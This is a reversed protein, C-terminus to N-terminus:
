GDLLRALANSAATWELSLRTAESAYCSAAGDMSIRAATLEALYQEMSTIAQRRLAAIHDREEQYIPM